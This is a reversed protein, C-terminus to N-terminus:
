IIFGQPPRRRSRVAECTPLGVRLLMHVQEDSTMELVERMLGAATMVPARWDSALRGDDLRNSLDTVAYYPHVGYGRRNLDIWIRQLTRGAEWISAPDRGGTIAIVGPAHAMLRADQAALIKYVGLQNLRHMRSWPAIFRMLLKGGPPMYLTAFDLGDGRMVEDLTWRLSTFLWEHLDQTNFRAESCLRVAQGVTRIAAASQICYLRVGSSAAPLDDLAFREPTRFPHRNTHRALLDRVAETQPVPATPAIFRLMWGTEDTKEAAPLACAALLQNINEHLAGGAILSGHGTPGFPDRAGSIPHYRCTVEDGRCREFRWPQANDASPASVASEILSIVPDM